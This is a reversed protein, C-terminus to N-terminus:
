RYELLTHVPPGITELLNLGGLPPLTLLFSFGSVDAELRQCLAFAAEATGGTALVDDVILVRQGTVLADTHVELSTKGYELQYDQAVTDAPLKGPKRLLALGTNLRLAVGTAFLFGRSEIAAVVDIRSGKFPAAMAAIAEAFAWSDALLPTIDRFLVGPTPFDPVARIREKLRAALNPDSSLEFTM